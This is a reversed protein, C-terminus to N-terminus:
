SWGAGVIPRSRCCPTTTAGPPSTTSSTRGPTSRARGVASRSTDISIAVDTCARIAAIVAATRAIQVEDSVRAGGPRTSEGGVDLISAGEEILRLARGVLEEVTGYQGGDSFSDPTANVIGMLQPELRVRRGGGVALGPRQEHAGVHTAGPDRASLAARRRSLPALRAVRCVIRRRHEIQRDVARDGM